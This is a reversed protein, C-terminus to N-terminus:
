RIRIRYLTKYSGKDFLVGAEYKSTGPNTDIGASWKYLSLNKTM